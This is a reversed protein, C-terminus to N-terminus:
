CLASAFKGKSIFYTNRGKGKEITFPFRSKAKEESIKCFTAVDRVTLLEKCPFAENLRKGYYEMAALDKAM